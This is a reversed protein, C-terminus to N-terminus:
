AEGRLDKSKDNAWSLLALVLLVAVVTGAVWLSALLFSAM